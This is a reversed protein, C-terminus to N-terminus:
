SPYRHGTRVGTDTKLIQADLSNRFVNNSLSWIFFIPLFILFSRVSGQLFFGISQVLLSGGILTRSTIRDNSLGTPFAALVGTLALSAYLIGIQGGNFHLEESFFVSLFFNTMSSFLMFIGIIISPLWDTRTETHAPAKTSLTKM